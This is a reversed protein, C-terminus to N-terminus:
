KLKMRKLLLSNTVVSVSSLAMATGAIIPNLLGFAAFPIGVSNYFFAWFLNQRIKRITKRSITIAKSIDRLDGRVLAVSSAEVAIDTGTAIAIGTDAQALAPADNIGDGAFIVNKGQSQLEKVKAAKESPLVQAIVNDIGADHAIALATSRNDGTVMYLDLGSLKLSRVAEAATPKISDSLAIAGALKGNIACVLITNGKNEMKKIAEPDTILVSRENMFSQTGVIIEEGDYLAIVGKGPVAKFEVPDPINQGVAEIVAKGLPHESRKEAIAIKRLLEDGTIHDAWIKSISPKGVTLTGTKDFVVTTTLYLTELAEANKFLIGNEAGKGTGVMLATPTALGLACPCAIVLVSVSNMLARAFDHSYLYWGTFTVFAIALVTWAFLGAVRDALAQVPAKSATAEEVTRIIQALVTDRGVRSATVVLSGFSNVTGGYVPDGGKKEVPLSEGTLMGEDVSSEGSWVKGDVPIREGPRVIVSDGIVLDKASIEIETGHRMVRATSPTLSMLRRIADTTSSKARAELYKGFLVLTILVASSEFYLNHHNKTVFANYVSFFYAASTGLAVLFDMGPSLSKLTLFGKRYFRFGIVFQVPTALAFQFYVNYLISSEIKLTMLIMSLLLPASLTISAALLIFLTDRERKQADKSAQFDGEKQEEAGYGLNIISAIMEVPSITSPDYLVAASGTALNVSAQTIGKLTNLKKDIRASCASCSMGTVIFTTQKM